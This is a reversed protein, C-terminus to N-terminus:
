IRSKGFEHPEDLNVVIGKLRSRRGIRGAAERPRITPMNIRLRRPSRRMGYLLSKNQMYTHLAQEMMTEGSYHRNDRSIDRQVVKRSSEKKKEGRSDESQSSPLSVV